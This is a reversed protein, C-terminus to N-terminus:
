DGMHVKIIENRLQTLIDYNTSQDGATFATYLGSELHSGKSLIGIVGDECRMMLEKVLLETPFLKLDDVTPEKTPM